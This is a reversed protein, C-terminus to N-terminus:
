DVINIVFPYGAKYAIVGSKLQKVADTILDYKTVEGDENEVCWPNPTFPNINENLRRLANKLNTNYM